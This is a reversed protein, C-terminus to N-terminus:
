NQLYFFLEVNYDLYIGINNTAIKFIINKQSVKAFDILNIFIFHYFLYLQNRNICFFNFLLVDNLLM